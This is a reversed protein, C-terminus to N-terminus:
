GSHCTRATHLALRRANPGTLDSTASDPSAHSVGAIVRRRRGVIQRRRCGINLQRAHLRVGRFRRRQGIDGALHLGALQRHEVGLQGLEIQLVSRLLHVGAGEGVHNGVQRPRDLGDAALGKDGDVDGGAVAVAGRDLM